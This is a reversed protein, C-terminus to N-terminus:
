AMVEEYIEVKVRELESLVIPADKIKSKKAAKVAAKEEASYAPRGRKIEGGAALKAARAEARISNISGEVKPRGLKGTTGAAKAALQQQRKSEPNVPRGAKSNDVTEVAIPTTSSM